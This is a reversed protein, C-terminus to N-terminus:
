KGGEKGAKRLNITPVPAAPAEPASDVIETGKIKQLAEELEARSFNSLVQAPAGAVQGPQVRASGVTFMPSDVNYNRMIDRATFESVELYSGVAPVLLPNGKSIVYAPQDDNKGVLGGNYYLRVKGAM